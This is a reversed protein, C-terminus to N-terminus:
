NALHRKKFRKQTHNIWIINLISYGIIALSLGLTPIGVLLPKGYHIFWEIGVDLGDSWSLQDWNPLVLTPYNTDNLILIGIKYAAMYLPVYTLPNTYLTTFISVALNKKFCYALLLASLMQTPGPMLGSFLGIAFAFRVNKRSFSWFYPKNFFPAFPKLWRSSFIKEKSPLKKKVKKFFHAKM